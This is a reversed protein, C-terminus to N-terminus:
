IHNNTKGMKPNLQAVNEAGILDINVDQAM